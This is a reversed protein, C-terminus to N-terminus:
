GQYTCYAYVVISDTVAYKSNGYATPLLMRLTAAVGVSWLWRRYLCIYICSLGASWHQDAGFYKLRSAVILM